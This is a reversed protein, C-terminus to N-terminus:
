KVVLTGSMGALSHGRFSCVYPYEGRTTPATFTVEASEGASILSTAAIVRDMQDPAIFNTAKALMGANVFAVPDTDARLLIWNHAMITAPMRGTAVLVVRLREGRKAAISTVSFKMDDAALIKLTRVAGTVARPQDATPQGIAVSCTLSLTALQVATNLFRRM